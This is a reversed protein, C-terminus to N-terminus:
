AEKINNFEKETHQLRSQFIMDCELNPMTQIIRKASIGTEMKSQTVDLIAKEVMGPSETTMIRETVKMRFRLMLDYIM